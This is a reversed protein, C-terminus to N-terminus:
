ACRDKCMMMLMMDGDLVRCFILYDIRRGIRLILGGRRRVFKQFCWRMLGRIIISVWVGDRIRRQSCNLSAMPDCRGLTKIQHDVVIVVVYNWPLGRVLIDRSPSVCPHIPRQDFRRPFPLSSKDHAPTPPTRAVNTSKSPRAPNARAVVNWATSNKPAATKGTTAMNGTSASVSNEPPNTLPYKITTTATIIPHQQLALTLICHNFSSLPFKSSRTHHFSLFTQCNLKPTKIIPMRHHKLLFFSSIFLQNIRRM